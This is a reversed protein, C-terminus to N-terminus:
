KDHNSEDCEIYFIIDIISDFINSSKKRSELLTYTNKKVSCARSKSCSDSISGTGAVPRDDFIWVPEMRSM